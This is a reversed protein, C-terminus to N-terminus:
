FFKKNVGGWFIKGGLFIMNKPPTVFNKKEPPSYNKPSPYFIKQLPPFLNKPLPGFFIKLPPIM